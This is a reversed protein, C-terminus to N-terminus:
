CCGAGAGSGDRDRFPLWSSLGCRTGLTDVALRGSVGDAAAMWRAREAVPAGRSPLGGTASGEPSAGCRGGCFCPGRAFFVLTLVPRKRDGGRVAGGACAGVKVDSALSVWGGGGGDAGLMMTLRGVGFDAELTSSWVAERSSSSGISRLPRREGPRGGPVRSATCSLESGSVGAIAPVPPFITGPPLRGAPLRGAVMASFRASSVGGPVAVVVEAGRVPPLAVLMADANPPVLPPTMVVSLPLSLPLSRALSSRLVDTAGDAAGGVDFGGGGVMLGRLDNECSLVDLFLIALSPERLMVTSVSVTVVTGCFTTPPPFVSRIILPAPLAPSPAAPPLMLNFGLLSVIRGLFSFFFTTRLAGDIDVVPSHRRGM